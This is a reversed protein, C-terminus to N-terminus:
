EAESSMRKYFRLLLSMSLLGLLALKSCTDILAIADQIGPPLGLFQTIWHIVAVLCIILLVLLSDHIIDIADQRFRQDFLRPPKNNDM